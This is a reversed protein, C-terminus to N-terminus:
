KEVNRGNGIDLLFYCCCYYYFCRIEDTWNRWINKWFDSYFIPACYYACLVIFIYMNNCWNWLAISWKKKMERWHLERQKRKVVLSRRSTTAYNHLTHTHTHTKEMGVAKWYWINVYCVNRRLSQWRAENLFIKYRERWLRDASTYM